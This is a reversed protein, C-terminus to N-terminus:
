VAAQRRKAVAYVTAGVAILAAALLAEKPESKAIYVLSWLTLTLFILPPLPYLWTRYPRPLNPQRWRLVFAGIVTGMTNLSLVFGSFLLISQFSSVLVFILAVGSQVYISLAPIGDENKRALRGFLAYDEGIVQLVRPGAITMASVTSVLLLSLVFSIASAGASGFVHQAAIYGVEVNGKMADMPAVLLFTFNLATYLVLVILTSSVLIKPLNRQADDIENILYTVSNWGTYAYNVYILSVAFAGSLLLHGDGAQPLFHVPQVHAVKIWCLICFTTILTIKTATFVSQFNSSRRRRGTHALTVVVILAVALGTPPLSPVAASLYNGFTLAALAVPAAFGISASIWGSVFGVAPHFIRGLFNYEGGSRPLAAGLEAYTLAGCLATVGGVVWLMILVFGSQLDVLQFGLSTFVGTGIMNAIIVASAIAPKYTTKGM